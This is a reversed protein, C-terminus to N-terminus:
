NSPKVKLDSTNTTFGYEKTKRLFSIKSAFDYQWNCLDIVDDIMDNQRLAQEHTMHCDNYIVPISLLNRNALFIHFDKLEKENYSVDIIFVDIEKTHQRLLKKAAEFTEATYGAHFSSGLVLLSNTDTGIYLYRLATKNAITAVRLYQKKDLQPVSPLTEVQM